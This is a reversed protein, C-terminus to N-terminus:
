KRPSAFLRRVRYVGLLMEARGIQLIMRIRRWMGAVVGYKKEKITQSLGTFVKYQFGKGEHKSFSNLAAEILFRQKFHIPVKEWLERTVAREGGLLMVYPLIFDNTFIKRDRMAVSMDVKGELVPELIERLMYHTLGSVDADSFFFVDGSAEAAARGMAQGKGYNKEQMLVRVPFQAAIAATNDTSGDDVVIVETFDPYTTLVELVVGIRKAENYAPVIATIATKNGKKNDM